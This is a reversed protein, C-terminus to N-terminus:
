LMDGGSLLAASTSVDAAKIGEKWDLDFVQRYYATVKKSRVLM